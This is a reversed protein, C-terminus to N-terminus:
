PARQIELEGCVPFTVIVEQKAYVEMEEIVTYSDALNFDWIGVVADNTAYNRTQGCGEYYDVHDTNTIRKYVWTHMRELWEDAIEDNEEYERFHKADPRLDDTFYEYWYDRNRKSLEADVGPPNLSRSRSGFGGASSSVTVSTNADTYGVRIDGIGVKRSVAITVIDDPDVSGRIEFAPFNNMREVLVGASFNTDGDIGYLITEPMANTAVSKDEIFYGQGFKYVLRTIEDRCGSKCPLCPGLFDLPRVGTDVIREEM